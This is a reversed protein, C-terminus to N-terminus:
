WTVPLERVRYLATDVMFDLDRLPAALALSPIRRYLTGYVVQLEMRALPQGLCRHPGDSFALHHRAGRRNLDLRDADPFASDDRNAIDTASIIGEGARILQGGIELDETAVRRRGLHTITLYRLIEEVANTLFQPDDNARLAALQDPHALLAVTGLTIMHVTTGIGGVVLPMALRAVQEADMRGTRFNDIVLRSLVDDGPEASRREVLETVYERMAAAATLMQRQDSQTSHTVDINRYFLERDAYPVGLWEAIVLAPVRLAFSRVLDTPNPGALMEDILGDVIEQIRPRLEEVRKLVFESTLLRRHEAHRPDDMTVFTEERQLRAKSGETTHPYGPRKPDASVRPDRLAARVDDHRTLLWPTSGDWLRVRSVPATRQLESLKTPPDFPCGAARAMPYAPIEETDTM